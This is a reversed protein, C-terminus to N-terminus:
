MMEEIKEPHDNVKNLMDMLNNNNLAEKIQDTINIEATPNAVSAEIPNVETTAITPNVETTKSAEVIPHVETTETAEATPVEEPDNMATAELEAAKMLNELSTLLSTM